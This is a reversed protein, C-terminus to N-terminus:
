LYFSAVTMDEFFRVVMQNMSLLFPEVFENLPPNSSTDPQNGNIVRWNTVRSSLSANKPINQPSNLSSIKRCLNVSMSLYRHMHDHWMFLLTIYALWKRWKGRIRLSTKSCSISLSLTKLLRDFISRGLRSSHCLWRLLFLQGNSETFFCYWQRKTMIKASWASHSLSALYFNCEPFSEDAFKNCSIEKPEGVGSYDWLWGAPPSMYIKQHLQYKKRDAGFSTHQKIAQKPRGCAKKRLRATQLLFVRSRHAPQTNAYTSCKEHNVHKLKFHSANKMM